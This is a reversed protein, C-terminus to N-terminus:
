YLKKLISNDGSQLPIHFHNCLINKDKALSIIEDSILNPEISSLRIRHILKQNNITNLLKELSTKEKLDIGYKGTNIGTLIVEKFGLKKLTKIQSFLKKESMSVSSGRAYPVICYTCFNDCGDQIKLYARTNKGTVVHDFSQFLKEKTNNPKTFKLLPKDKLNFYNHIYDAIVFKDQNCIIKDINLIENIKEPETQSHCGTVVIKSLPNNKIAKRIAQRSQMCAKSTVACTNIIFVDSTKDSKEWGKKELSIAIGDSEYQNVKCGLTKINFKKDSM